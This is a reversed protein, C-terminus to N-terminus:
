ELKCILEPAVKEMDEIVTPSVEKTYLVRFFYSLEALVKWDAEPIFGRVMVPLLRELWIHYDHSKLGIIRLTDLKVGRKLNAAYGDPFMLRAIWMLALVKQARTLVWPAKPKRWKKQGEPEKLELHPRDCLRKQDVRAKVNDRSKDPIDFLIAFVSEGINKETHM